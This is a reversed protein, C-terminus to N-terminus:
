HFSLIFLPISAGFNVSFVPPDVPALGAMAGFGMFLPMM